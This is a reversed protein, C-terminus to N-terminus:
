CLFVYYGVVVKKLQLYKYRKLECKRKEGFVSGMRAARYWLSVLIPAGIEEVGVM